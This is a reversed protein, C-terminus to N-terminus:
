REAVDPVIAVDPRASRRPEDDGGVRQLVDLSRRDVGVALVDRLEGVDIAVTSEIHQQTPDIARDRAVLHLCQVRIARRPETEDGLLEFVDLDDALALRRQVARVRHRHEVDIAVAVGVNQPAVEELGAQQPDSVLPRARMKVKVALPDRKGGASWEFGAAVVRGRGTVQIAVPPEIEDDAHEAAREVRDLRARRIQVLEILGRGAAPGHRGRM